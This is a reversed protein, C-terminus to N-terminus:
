PVLHTFRFALQISMHKMSYNGSKGRTATDAAEFHTAILGWAENLGWERGSANDVTSCGDYSFPWTFSLMGERIRCATRRRLLVYYYKTNTEHLAVM